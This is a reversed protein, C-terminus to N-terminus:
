LTHLSHLQTRETPLSLSPRGEEGPRILGQSPPLVSVAFPSTSYAVSLTVKLLVRIPEASCKSLSNPLSIPGNRAEM